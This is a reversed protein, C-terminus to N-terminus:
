GANKLANKGLFTLVVIRLDWWFTWNDLYKM